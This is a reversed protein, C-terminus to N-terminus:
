LKRADETLDNQRLTQAIESLEIWFHINTSQEILRPWTEVKEKVFPIKTDFEKIVMKPAWVRESRNTCLFVKVDNELIWTFNDSCDKEPKGYRIKLLDLIDSFKPHVADYTAYYGDHPLEEWTNPIPTYVKGRGERTLVFDYSEAPEIDCHSFWVKHLVDNNGIKLYHYSIEFEIGALEMKRPAEKEIEQKTQGFYVEGFAKVHYEPIPPDSDASLTFSFFSLAILSLSCSKM